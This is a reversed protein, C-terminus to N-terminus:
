QVFRIKLEKCILALNYVGVSNVKFTDRFDGEAKDVLNYAACNILVDPKIEGVIKHTQDFQTIDLEEKSLAVYDIGKREFFKMFETALQGREGTIFYRM